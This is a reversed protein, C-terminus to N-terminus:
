QTGTLSSLVQLTIDYCFLISNCTLIDIKILASIDFNAFGMLKM